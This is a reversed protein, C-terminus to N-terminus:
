WHDLVSRVPTSSCRSCGRQSRWKRTSRTYECRYQQETQVKVDSRCESSVTSLDTKRKYKQLRIGPCARAATSNISGDVDIGTYEWDGLKVQTPCTVGFLFKCVRQIVPPPNNECILKLLNNNSRALAYSPNTQLLFFVSVLSLIQVRLTRM